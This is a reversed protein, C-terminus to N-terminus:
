ESKHLILTLIARFCGMEEPSLDDCSERGIAAVGGSHICEWSIRVRIRRRNSKFLFLFSNERCVLYSERNFTRLPSACILFIVILVIVILSFIRWNGTFFISNAYNERAFFILQVYTCADQSWSNLQIWNKFISYTPFTIYRVLQMYTWDKL